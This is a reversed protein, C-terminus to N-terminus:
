LLMIFRDIASYRRGENVCVCCSSWARQNVTRWGRRLKRKWPWVRSVQLAPQVLSISSSFMLCFHTYWSSVVHMCRMGKAHGSFINEHLTFFTKLKKNSSYYSNCNHKQSWEWLQWCGSTAENGHKRISRNSNVLSWPLMLICVYGVKVKRELSKQFHDYRLNKM